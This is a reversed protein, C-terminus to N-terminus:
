PRSPSVGLRGEWHSRPSVRATKSTAVCNAPSVYEVTIDDTRVPAATVRITVSATVDGIDDV